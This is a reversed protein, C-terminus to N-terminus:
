NGWERAWAVFALLGLTIGLGLFKSSLPTENIIIGYSWLGFAAAAIWDGIDMMEFAERLRRM